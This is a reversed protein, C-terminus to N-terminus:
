PLLTPNLTFFGDILHIAKEHNEDRVVDFDLRTRGWRDQYIKFSCDDGFAKKITPMIAVVAADIKEKVWPNEYRPVFFAVTRM